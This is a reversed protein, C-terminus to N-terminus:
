KALVGILSGLLIGLLMVFPLELDPNRKKAARSTHQECKEDLMHENREQLEQEFSDWFNEFANYDDPNIYGEPQVHILKAEVLKVLATGKLSLETYEKESM